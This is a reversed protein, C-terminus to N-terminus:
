FDTDSSWVEKFAAAVKDFVSSQGDGAVVAKDGESFSIFEKQSSDTKAMGLENKAYEEIVAPGLKNEVAMQVQTYTSSLEGLTSQASTIQHNLETLQAQGHIIAAVSVIAMISVVVAALSELPDLQAWRRLMRERNIDYLRNDQSKARERKLEDTEEFLSLDLASNDDFYAMVIVENVTRRAWVLPCM